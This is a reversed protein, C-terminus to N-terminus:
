APVGQAANAAMEGCYMCRPVEPFMVIEKTERDRVLGAAIHPDNLTFEVHLGNCCGHKSSQRGMGSRGALTNPHNDRGWNGGFAAEGERLMYHWANGNPHKPEFGSWHGTTWKWIINRRYPHEVMLCFNGVAFAIDYEGDDEIWEGDAFRSISNGRTRTPFADALPRFEYVPRLLESMGADGDSFRLPCVM